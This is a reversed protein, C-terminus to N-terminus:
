MLRTNDDPLWLGLLEMWEAMVDGKGKSHCHAVVTDNSIPTTPFHRRGGSRRHSGPLDCYRTIVNHPLLSVSLEHMEGPSADDTPFEIVGRAVHTSTTFRMDSSPTWAIELHKLAENIATQDDEHTEVLEELVVLFKRMSVKSDANGRFLVFGMCITSGWEVFLHAPSMGRSAIVDSSVAGDLSFAVTPDKLWLADADSM